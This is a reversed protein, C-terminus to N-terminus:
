FGRMKILFSRLQNNRINNENFEAFQIGIMTKIAIKDSEIDTKNYEEYYKSLIQIKGHVYSQTEEFVKRKINEKKPSFYKQWELDFLGCFVLFSFLLVFGLISIFIIKLTNM